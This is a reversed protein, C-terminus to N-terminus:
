VMFFSLWVRPQRKGMFFGYVLLRDEQQFCYQQFVPSLGAGYHLPPTILPPETGSIVNKWGDTGAANGAM